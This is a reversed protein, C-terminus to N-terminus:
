QLPLEFSGTVNIVTGVTEGNKFRMMTGSFNGKLKGPVGRVIETISATINGRPIVDSNQIYTYTDAGETTTIVLREPNYIGTTQGNIYLVKQFCYSGPINCYASSVITQIKSNVTSTMSVGLPPSSPYSYSVNIHKGDVLCDFFYNASSNNPNPNNQSCSIFLTLLIILILKM